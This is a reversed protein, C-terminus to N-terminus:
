ANKEESLPEPPAEREQGAKHKEQEESHGRAFSTLFVEAKFLFDQTLSLGWVFAIISIVISSLNWEITQFVACVVFVGFIAKLTAWM